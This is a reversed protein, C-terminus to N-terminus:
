MMRQIGAVAALGSRAQQVKEALDEAARIIAANRKVIADDPYEGVARCERYHLLALLNKETLEQANEPKPEEGSPIKPCWGCPPKLGKPRLCPKGGREVRAGFESHGRDYYLYKQCDSCSRAAIEPHLLVLRVGM